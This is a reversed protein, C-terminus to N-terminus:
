EEWNGNQIQNDGTLIGNCYMTGAQGGAGDAPRLDLNYIEGCSDRQAVRTVARCERSGAVFVRDDVRCEGARKWGAAGDAGQIWVPHTKTMLLGREMGEAFLEVMPETEQGRWVNAVRMIKEERGMVMEGIAIQCIEKESGDAMRIKTDPAVCGYMIQLPMVQDTISQDPYRTDIVFNRKVWDGNSKKTNLELELRYDFEIKEWDDKEKYEKGWALFHYWLANGKRQISINTFDYSANQAIIATGGTKKYLKCVAKNPHDPSIEPTEWGPFRFTGEGPVCLNPRGSVMNTGCIYDVDKKDTPERVLAIVIHDKNGTDYTLPYGTKLIGLVVAKKEKKPYKHLYTVGPYPTNAEKFAALENEKLDGNGWKGYAIVGLRGDTGTDLAFERELVVANAHEAGKAPIRALVKRSDMDLIHAQIELRNYSDLLSIEARLHGRGNEKAYSFDSIEFNDYFQFPKPNATELLTLGSESFARLAGRTKTKNRTVGNLSKECAAVTEEPFRMELTEETKLMIRRGKGSYMGEYLRDMGYGETAFYIAEERGGYAAFMKFCVVDRCFRRFSKFCIAATYFQAPVRMESERRCEGNM